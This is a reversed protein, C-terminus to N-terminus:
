KKSNQENCHVKGNAVNGEVVSTKLYLSSVIIDIGEKEFFETRSSVAHTELPHFILIDGPRLAVSYGLKGFVFYCAIPLNLKYHGENDVFSPHSSHVFVASYFSDYDTHQRLYVNKGAALATFMKEGPLVHKMHDMNWKARRFGHADDVPLHTKVVGEVRNMENNAFDDQKGLHKPPFLGKQGQGATIGDFNYTDGQWKRQKGRSRSPDKAIFSEMSKVANHTAKTQENEIAKKRPIKIFVIHEEADTGIAGCFDDATDDIVRCNTLASYIVENVMPQHNAIDTSEKGSFFVPHDNNINLVNYETHNPSIQTFKNHFKKNKVTKRKKAKKKRLSIPFQSGAVIDNCFDQTRKSNKTKSNYLGFAKQPPGM